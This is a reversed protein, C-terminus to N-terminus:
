GRATMAVRKRCVEDDKVYDLIVKELKKCQEILARRAELMPLIFAQLERDDGILEKIRAGFTATTVRGTKLGFVKITGRIENDMDMRKALLSRRNRLLIRLKQSDHSKVHVEKYWGTRMIHALGRADNRDTKVQQAQMAAKAHRTEICIAPHGL